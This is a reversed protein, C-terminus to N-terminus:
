QSKGRRFRELREKFRRAGLMSMLLLLLWIKEDPLYDEGTKPSKRVPVNEDVPSAPQREPEVPEEPEEMDKDTYVVAYTSFRDTMFRFTSGDEEQMTDLLEAQGEHVRVVKFSRSYESYREPLDPANMVIELPADVEHVTSIGQTKGDIVIQKFLTIDFYTVGTAGLAALRAVEARESAKVSTDIGSINLYLNVVFDLGNKRARETLEREDATLVQEALQATLDATEVLPVDEEMVIYTVVKRSGEKHEAQRGKQTKDTDVIKWTLHVTGYYKGKGTVSISYTGQKEAELTGGLDYDGATLVTEQDTVTVYPAYDTGARYDFVEKDLTAMCEGINKPADSLYTANGARDILKAYVTFGDEVPITFPKGYPAWAEDDLLRLATDTLTGITTYYLIRDLGSGTDEGTIEVTRLEETSPHLFGKKETGTLIMRGTPATVDAVGQVTFVSDTEARKVSCTYMRGGESDTDVYTLGVRDGNLCVAFNGDAAGSVMSYGKHLIFTVKASEHWALGGQSMMNEDVSMTYGIQEAQDPVEVKLRRGPEIVVETADSALYNEKAAYRVRYSGPAFNQEIARVPEFAPEAAEAAVEAIEMEASLGEIRGDAKHLITEAVAVLEPAQQEGPLIHFVAKDPNYLVPTYHPNKLTGLTYDYEGVNEGARRGIKGTLTEGEPLGQVVYTLVPDTEGYVKQAAVPTIRVEGPVIRFTTTLDAGIYNGKLEVRVDAPGSVTSLEVNNSYHVDYDEGARLTSGCCTVTLVPEIERGTYTQDAIPAIEVPGVAILVSALNGAKDKATILHSKGDAPISYVGYEPVVERGDVRVSELYTDAVTFLVDKTYVWGDVVGGIVPPITDIVMGDSSLYIVNGARDTVKAYIVYKADRDILFSGSYVTWDTDEMAEITTQDLQAASVYYGVSDVGSGVDTATITVRQMEKFFIGFTIRNLLTQWTYSAVKIEAEPRTVDAVGEVTVVSDTEASAITYRYTTDGNADTGEWTLSVPTGNVLLAFTEAPSYGAKLVFTLVANEHWALETRDTTLLYGVQENQDPITVLLKRGPGIVVETEESVKFNRGEAYRVRYTGAALTMGASVIKEYTGANGAADVAAYEMYPNNEGSYVALGTITGDKKGFITEDVGNIKPKSQDLKEIVFPISLREQDAPLRYNSLNNGGLAAAVATYTEGPENADTQEGTVAVTVEDKALAGKVVAIPKQPMGNYVFQTNGWEIELEIPLIMFEQTMDEDRVTYNPNSIATITATYPTDSANIQGGATTLVCTDGAAIGEATVTPIHENGDYIFELDEWVITLEKPLIEFNGTFSAATVADRVVQVSIDATGVNTNNAYSVTYDGTALAIEQVDAASSDRVKLKVVMDDQVVASGTYAQDTIGEVSLETTTFEVHDSLKNTDSRATLYYTATPELGAFVLKGGATPTFDKVVTEEDAALLAYSYQPDLQEFTMSEPYICWEPEVANGAGDLSPGVPDIATTVRSVDQVQADAKGIELAQHLYTTDDRLNEWTRSEGTYWGITADSVDGLVEGDASLVKGEPDVLRYFFETDQNKATIQSSTVEYNGKRAQKIIKISKLIDPDLSSYFDSVEVAGPAMTGYDFTVAIATDEYEYGNKDSMTMVIDRDEAYTKATVPATDWLGSLYASTPAFAVKRSARVRNDFIMFFFANLTNAGRAVVLCYNQEGAPKTPDPNCVVKDYTYHTDHTWKDQDPDFSRVFRVDSISKGSNNVVKLSTNYQKDYVGFSYTFSIEVGEATTGTVTCALTDGSSTDVAKPQVSWSGTYQNNREAVLHEYTTGGLKYSFIWREEPTGPVFFDGSTPVNGTGWGDEDILLGLIGYRANDSNATWNTDPSTKECHFGWAANPTKSTGFSGHKSVGVEMYYGGLYVNGDSDTYSRPKTYDITVADTVVIVYEVGGMTFKLWEETYFPQRAAVYWEGDEWMAAFLEENSVAVDTIGGNVTIGVAELIATLSVREDGQLVYQRIGYTFEVTYYSFGETEAVVAEDAEVDVEASAAITEEADVTETTLSLAELGEDAEAVHYVQTELNENSVETMAFSVRVSGRDTDPQIEEGTVSYIKIDFTYSAAVKQEEGRVEAVADLVQEAEGSEVERVSLVANTPLVGKDAMVSVVGGKVEVSQEFPARYFLDNGSVTGWLLLDNGSVSAVTQEGVAGGSMGPFSGANEEGAAAQLFSEEGATEQLIPEGAAAESVGRDVVAGDTGTGDASVADALTEDGGSVDAAADLKGGDPVVAAAGTGDLTMADTEARDLEVAYASTEINGFFLAASLLYAM